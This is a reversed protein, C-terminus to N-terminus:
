SSRGNGNDIQAIHLNNDKAYSWEMYSISNKTSTVGEAM